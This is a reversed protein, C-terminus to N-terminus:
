SDTVKFCRWSRTEPPCTLQTKALSTSPIPITPSRPSSGAGKRSCAIYEAPQVAGSRPEIFSARLTIGGALAKLSEKVETLELELNVRETEKQKCEEELKKLKKWSWRPRGAQLGLPVSSSWSFAFVELCELISM